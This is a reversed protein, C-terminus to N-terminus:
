NPLHASNLLVVRAFERTAATAFIEGAFCRKVLLPIRGCHDLHAHTLLLFDVKAATSIPHPRIENPRRLEHVFSLPRIDILDDRVGPVFPHQFTDTPRLPASGRFLQHQQIRLHHFVLEQPPPLRQTRGIVTKLHGKFLADTSGLGSLMIDLAPWHAIPVTLAFSYLDNEADLDRRAHRRNRLLFLPAGDRAPAGAPLISNLRVIGTLPVIGALFGDAIQRIGTQYRVRPEIRQTSAASCSKRRACRSILITAVLM